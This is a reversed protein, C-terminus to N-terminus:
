KKSFNSKGIEDEQILPNLYRDTKKKNKYRIAKQPCRQYCGICAVCNDGFVIKGDSVTINSTPCLKVCKQCLICADTISFDKALLHWNEKNKLYTASKTKKKKPVVPEEKHLADLLANVRKPIGKIQSRLYFGPTSFTLTFNEPMQVVHVGHLNLGFSKAYEYTFYDAGGLMGGYNLVIDVVSTKNLNPLLDYVFTPLGWSYVPSVVVIKDYEEGNGFYQPIYILDGGFSKQIEKAIYLSNGTSSFYFIGTM